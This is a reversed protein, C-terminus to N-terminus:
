GAAEAQADLWRDLEATITPDTITDLSTPLALGLADAIQRACRILRAPGIGHVTELRAKWRVSPPLGSIGASDTAPAAAEIAGDAPDVLRPAGHDDDVLALQGAGIAHLRNRIQHLDDVPVDKASHYRGQSHAHLFRARDADSLGAATCWMAVTRAGQEDVLQEVRPTPAAAPAKGRGQPASERAAADRGGDDDSGAITPPAPVPTSSGAGGQEAPAPVSHEGLGHEAGASRQAAPRPRVGTSAVPAAAGKRARRQAAAAAAQAEFDALQAAVDPAAPAVPAPAPSFSPGSPLARIEADSAGLAATAGGDGDGDDLVLGLADLKLGVDLIPVVFRKIPEGPRRQERQELRLTAPLLRGRAMARQCVEVAGGLEQAANWGQTDLRWVGLGPLDRLLLSLRTHPTCQDAADDPEQACLCPQDSIHERVGDCRRLCGGGSWAEFWQSFAIDDPPVVVALLAADTTVEFQQPGAPADAWEHPEGGYLGAAAVVVDQHQSTFRFTTLKKPRKIARGDRAKADVREGIRIRGAERLRRQLTLIPM